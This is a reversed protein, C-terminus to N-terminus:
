GKVRLRKGVDVLQELCVAVIAPSMEAAYCPRGLGQAPRAGEIGAM